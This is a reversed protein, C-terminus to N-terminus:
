LLKEYSSLKIQVDFVNIIKIQRKATLALVLVQIEKAFLIFKLQVKIKRTALVTQTIIM